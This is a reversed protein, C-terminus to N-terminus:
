DADLEAALLLRAKEWRRRVTRDTVQLADAIERETLGAFYRMEVIEVLQADITALEALADHIRLVEEEGAPDAMDVSTDLTVDPAGGGRREAMKSRAFDVVISRMVQGAYRFFHARDTIALERAKVLRLYSEHVLATTELLTGRVNRSLRSRAIKRLEDYTADFIIKFAREDGRSAQQILETLPVGTTM